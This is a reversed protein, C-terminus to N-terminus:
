QELLIIEQKEQNIPRVTNTRTEQNITRVTNNGMKEQNITRITNNRTEQNKTRKM